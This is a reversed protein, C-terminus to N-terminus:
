ETDEGLPVTEVYVLGEDDFAVILQEGAYFTLPVEYEAEVPIPEILEPDVLLSAIEDWTTNRDFLDPDYKAPPLITTGVPTTMPLNAILAGDAFEYETDLDYYFWNEYRVLPGDGQAGSREFSLTFTDPPGIMSRLQDRDTAGVPEPLKAAADGVAALLAPSVDM